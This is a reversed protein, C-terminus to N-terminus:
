NVLSEHRTYSRRRVTMRHAMADKKNLVEEGKHLKYIGTKKVEGGKKFSSVSVSPTTTAPTSSAIKPSSTAVPPLSQTSAKDLAPDIQGYKPPVVTPPLTQPTTDSVSSQIPPNSQKHYISDFIDKLKGQLIKIYNDM